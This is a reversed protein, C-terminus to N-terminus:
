SRYKQKHFNGLPHIENLAVGPAPTRKLSTGWAELRTTRLSTKSESISVNIPPSVRQHDNCSDTIEIIILCHNGLQKKWIKNAPTEKVLFKGEDILTM